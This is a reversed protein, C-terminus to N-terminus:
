PRKPAATSALCCTPSRRPIRSWSLIIESQEAVQEATALHQAGQKLLEEAVPGITTVHLAHGAKALRLAMPTGMIGLGIFGLKM